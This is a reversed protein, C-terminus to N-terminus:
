LMGGYYYPERGLEKVTSAIQVNTIEVRAEIEFQWYQAKFGSPLRMPEGTTRIERTWVHRGDAFARILGYQNDALTQDLATNPTDSQDPTGIPIRFYIALAGLNRAMDLQIEKSRWLYPKFQQVNYAVDLWYVKGGMVYLLEGSWPDTQLSDIPLDSTVQVCATRSDAPDILLGGATGGDSEAFAAADFGGADFSIASAIGPAYYAGGFRAAYLAGFNTLANWRDKSITSLTICAAVGNAVLVLGNPSMYYTGEPASLISLRSICPEFSTLKTPTMSGPASGFMAVPYGKTCVILTQGSVGLGVVGYEVTQVYEVPWAHPHYPESFWVENERWGALAGNPLLVFGQLDTPPPTWTTSELQNNGTITSDLVTDAYTTTTIDIEAVLYFEATGSTDTVTRYIRTKTLNRDVGRDNPDSAPITLNWTGDTPGSVVDAPSPAGEEGYASVWTYVYARSIVTGTGGTVSVTPATVPTTVGLKWAPSSSDIRSRPNYRPVDTPCAWYYRDYTDGFVPAHVVDTNRDTFEMWSSGFMYSPNSYTAPLRYVRVTGPACTHLEQAVPLGKLTGHVLWTDRAEAAYQDPLLRDDMVPIMGGFSDLKM